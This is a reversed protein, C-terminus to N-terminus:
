DRITMEIARALLKGMCRQGFDNLHLGDSVMFQAYPMHEGTVWDRMIQFRRFVGVGNERAITEMAGVYDDENPLSLVAPVYQPTMLIVDAGAKKVRDVGTSLKLKFVDLPMGKIAANTGAQWIVLDPDRAIVDRELRELMETVDQGGIGKNFITFNLRVDEFQRALTLQLQRPYTNVDASAGHGQTSSSGLAVIVVKKRERVAAKVRPLKTGLALNEPAAPCKEPGAAAPGPSTVLLIGVVLGILLSLAGHRRAPSAPIDTAPPEVPNAALFAPVNPEPAVPTSPVRAPRRSADPSKYWRAFYAAGTMIALGTLSVAIDLLLPWSVSEAYTDVVVYAVFSLFTGLCFVMLSQEGCRRLSQAYWRELFAAEPPTLRAVLYAIALFHLLRLPDFNTKDIPYILRGVVDPLLKALAPVYWGLAVFGAALLYLIALVDLTRWAPRLREIIHGTSALTAGAYFVLQWALPNFFWTAGEPHAPLNWGFQRAVIYLTLSVALAVWPRRVVLPLMLPFTLLLAIYLPLVDLNVPRFKLLAAQVLTEYPMQGLGTLNMHEVFTDGRSHSAAACAVSATLVVFLM